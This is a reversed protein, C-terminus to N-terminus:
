AVVEPATRNYEETLKKQMDYSMPAYADFQMKFKARGQSISRLSSSFDHMEALPIKAIIKQFHGETDMGELIGRRSQIDGMVAGTLDEPCLVEVKYIP